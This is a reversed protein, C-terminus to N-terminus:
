DYVDIVMYVAVLVTQITSLSPNVGVSPRAMSGALWAPSARYNVALGRTTTDLM